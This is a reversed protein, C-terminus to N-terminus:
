DKAPGERRFTFFAMRLVVNNILLDLRKIDLSLIDNALEKAKTARVHLV